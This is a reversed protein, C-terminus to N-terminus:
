RNTLWPKAYVTFSEIDMREGTLDTRFEVTADHSMLNMGLQIADSPLEELTALELEEYELRGKGYVNTRLTGVGKASIEMVQMKQDVSNAIQRRGYLQGSEYIPQFAVGNDNGIVTNDQVLIPTATPPGVWIDSKQTAWNRVLALSSASAALTTLSFDVEMPGRGRSYDWTLLYSNDTAADLPVAVYIIQRIIDDVIRLTYRAVSWNIRKWEPENMNSIPLTPYTGDFDWLGSENAVLAHDGNTAVYVGHIATTGLSQSVSYPTVWSDPLAENDVTAYTWKPGFFYNVGRIHCGAVIQRQGPMQVIHHAATIRESEFLDSVYTLSGTFYATRNGLQAISYPKFPGIGSVQTLFDFWDTIDTGLVLTEDSISVNLLATSAVGGAVSASVDPVLYFQELNEITTMVIAVTDADAPWTATISVQITKNATVTFSLPTFIAATYPSPKLQAGSRSTVIYGIKHLGATCVGTGNEIATPAVSMPGMFAKSIPSGTFVGNRPTIVRAESAGEVSTNYLAAYVRDAADIIEAGYAGAIAELTAESSGIMDRIRLEGNEFTVVRNINGAGADFSLWQHIATMKGTATRGAAFGDRGIVRGGDYRVNEARSARNTLYTYQARSGNPETRARTWAGRLDRVTRPTLEAVSM